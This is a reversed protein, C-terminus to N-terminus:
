GEDADVSAGCQQCFRAGAPCLAECKPCQRATLHSTEAPAAQPAMPPRYPENAAPPSPKSATEQAEDGDAEFTPVRAATAPTQSAAEQAPAPTEQRLAQVELRLAELHEEQEDIRLMLIKIDADDLKSKRCLERARKGVEVLTREIEGETRGLEGQLRLMEAQKSAEDKLQGAAQKIRDLLSM